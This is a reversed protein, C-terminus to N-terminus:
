KGCINVPLQGVISFVGGLLLFCYYIKLWVWGGSPDRGYRVVVFILIYSVIARRSLSINL